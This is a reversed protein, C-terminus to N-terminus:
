TRESEVPFVYDLLLRVGHVLVKVKHGSIRLGDRIPLHSEHPWMQQYWNMVITYFVFM